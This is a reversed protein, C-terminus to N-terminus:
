CRPCRGPFSSRSTFGPSIWFLVYAGLSTAKFLWFGTGGLIDGIQLGLSWTTASLISSAYLFLVRATPLDPRRLLVYTAVVQFVLAFLITGWNRRLFVGLPYGTLTVAVELPRGDRSVTYTATEGVQWGPRDVGGSFLAQAWAEMPRGGVAVVVDGRRLGGAREELPTVVVGDARWVPQGPQLRAGDFPTVLHLLLFAAGLAVLLVGALPALLRARDPQSVNTDPTIDAQEHTEPLHPVLDM